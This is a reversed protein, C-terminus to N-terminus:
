RTLSRMGNARHCPHRRPIPRRDGVVRSAPRRRVRSHRTRLLPRARPSGMGGAVIHTVGKEGLFRPLLGPEHPPAAIYEKKTVSKGDDAVDFADFGACHGFHQTLRGDAVPVAIKM